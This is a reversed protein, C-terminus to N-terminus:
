PGMCKGKKIEEEEELTFDNKVNFFERVEELSKGRMFDAAAQCTLNLLGQINLYNATEILEFLTKPNVKVFNADWNLLKEEPKAVESPVHQECYEIVKTLIKGSVYPLPIVEDYGMDEVLNKIMISQFAVAEEVKIIHNEETRLLVWNKEEM